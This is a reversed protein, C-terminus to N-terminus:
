MKLFNSLHQNPFKMSCNRNYSTSTQLLTTGADVKRCVLSTKSDPTKRRRKGIAPMNPIDPVTKHTTQFKLM